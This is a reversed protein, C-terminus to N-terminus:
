ASHYAKLLISIATHEAHERGAFIVHVGYKNMISILNAMVLNGAFAKNNYAFYFNNEDYLADWTQEVVIYKYKIHQMRQMERHFREKKTQPIFNNYLELMSKKREITILTPCDKVMYDGADIKTLVTGAIKGAKYAETFLWPQRERTDILITPPTKEPVM